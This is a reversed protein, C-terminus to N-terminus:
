LVDELADKLSAKGAKGKPAPTEEAEEVEALDAADVTPEFEDAANQKGDLREGDGLFQINNIAFSVGRNGATDYAFPRISARVRAGAYLKEEIERDSLMVVKGDAGRVNSACGPKKMSAVRIYISGEPYGRKEIESPKKLFPTRFDGDKVLAALKDGFFAKACETAAAKLPAIDGVGDLYKNLAGPVFVLSCGYKKKGVENGKDDKVARPELFTPFSLIAEGTIITPSNNQKAM